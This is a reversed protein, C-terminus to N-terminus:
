AIPIRSEATLRLAAERLSLRDDKALGDLQTFAEEESCRAREQMGATVATVVQWDSLADPVSPSEKLVREFWRFRQRATGMAARLVPESVPKELYGMAGARVAETQLDSRATLVVVCTPCMEMLLRTAEIGSMKPMQIDMLVLDPRLVPCANLAEAGDQVRAVVEYGAAQLSACLITGLLWEDEVVVVRM